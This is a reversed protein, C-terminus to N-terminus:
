SREDVITQMLAFVADAVERRYPKEESVIGNYFPPLGNKIALRNIANVMALLSNHSLRRNQDASSVMDQYESREMCSSNGFVNMICEHKFVARHYNKFDLLVKYIFDLVARDGKCKGILASLTSKNIQVVSENTESEGVILWRNRSLVIAPLIDDM